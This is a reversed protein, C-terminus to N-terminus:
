SRVRMRDEAAASRVTTDALLHYSDWGMTGTALAAAIVFPGSFQGDVVNRPNHKKDAPAGILLMGAKSLGLRVSAIETPRCITRRACRWPQTSAPM